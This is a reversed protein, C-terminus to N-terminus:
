LQTQGAGLVIFVYKDFMIIFLKPIKGSIEWLNNRSFQCVYHWPIYLFTRLMSTFPKMGVRKQVRDILCTM